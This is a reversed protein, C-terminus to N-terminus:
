GMLSLLKKKSRDPEFECSISSIALFYTLKEFKNKLTLSLSTKKVPVFTGKPFPVNTGAPVNTGTPFPVNMGQMKGVRELAEVGRDIGRSVCV